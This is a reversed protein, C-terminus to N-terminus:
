EGNLLYNASLRVHHLKRQRNWEEDEGQAYLRNEVPTGRPTDMGARLHYRPLSHRGRTVGALALKAQRCMRQASRPGRSRHMQRARSLLVIAVGVAVEESDVDTELLCDASGHSSDELTPVSSAELAPM